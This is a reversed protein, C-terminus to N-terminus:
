NVFGLLERGYECLTFFAYMEEVLETNLAHWLCPHKSYHCKDEWPMTVHSVAQACSFQGSLQFHHIFKM